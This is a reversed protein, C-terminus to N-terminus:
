MLMSIMLAAIRIALRSPPPPMTRPPLAPRSTVAQHSADRDFAQGLGEGAIGRLRRHGIEIEVDAVVRENRQEAWAAAALRRRKAHDRAVDDWVAAGDM